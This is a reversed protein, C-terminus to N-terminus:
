VFLLALVIAGLAVVYPDVMAYSAARSTTTASASNSTGTGAASTAAATTSFGSHLTSAGTAPATATAALGFNDDAFSKWADLTAKPWVTSFQSTASGYYVPKDSAPLYDLTLMTSDEGGVVSGDSLVLGTTNSGLVFERLFVLARAAQWQPVLHGANDFLVYTVNREQHVVGAFSNSDDFWPTAPKRSFGQIGGFTFNQIVVETGRHAVLADANGSYFVIPVGRTAIDTLLVVSEVSPDGFENANPSRTRTSGFPYRFSSTWNKSTPAHLAARTADDNMFVAGNQPTEPGLADPIEYVDFDGESWPFTFNAAYDLMEDFLFCGYFPDITGNARQSIDKKWLERQMLRDRKKLASRSLYRAAVDARWDTRRLALDMTRQKFYDKRDDASPEVLDLTPFLGGTQPYTLNLDFGCLHTQTRFYELASQDFGIIQPYTEIVSLAPLEEFTALSGIAGDGIAIKALNVPPKPTALITKTIYPIYMGAYSEGTLYFPRTALSPFVKALNSLFGVFDEGMQDMDAVYGMEDATSFGTGVPQDVWIADALGDWSFNNKYVGLDNDIHFPGNEFLFGLFSSSGPGGNLWILWPDDASANKTLSGASKEFAWFFLTDNPHGARSTAINGAFSRPLDFTINPLASTNVLFYDQWEASYDGAPIGTYNHPFTNPIPQPTRTQAYALPVALLIMFPAYRWM